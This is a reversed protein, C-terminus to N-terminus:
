RHAWEMEMSIAESLDNTRKKYIDVITQLLELRKARSTWAYSEFARRAVKVARDVDSADGAAITAFVEETAPNVVEIRRQQGPEVWQGDIYFQHYHPV